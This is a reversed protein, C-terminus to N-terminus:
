PASTSHAIQQAATATMDMTFYRDTGGDNWQIVCKDAKFYIRGQNSISPSAPNVTSEEFTIGAHGVNDLGLHLTTQPTVSIGLRVNTDDYYLLSSALAGASQFPVYHNNLNALSLAGASSVKFKDAGGYGLRMLNVTLGTLATNTTDFDLLNLTTTTNSGGVNLTARM